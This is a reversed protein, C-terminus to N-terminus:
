FLCFGQFISSKGQTLRKSTSPKGTPSRLFVESFVPNEYSRRSKEPSYNAIWKGGPVASTVKPNSASFGNTSTESPFHFARFVPDFTISFSFFTLNRRQSQFTARSHQVEQRPSRGGLLMSKVFVIKKEFKIPLTTKLGQKQRLFM